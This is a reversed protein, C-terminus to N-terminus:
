LSHIKLDGKGMIDIIKFKKKNFRGISESEFLSTKAETIFNTSFHKGTMLHVYFNKYNIKWFFYKNIFITCLYISHQFLQVDICKNQSCVNM